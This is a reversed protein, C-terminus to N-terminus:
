ELLGVGAALIRSTLTFRAYAFAHASVETATGMAAVLDTLLDELVATELHGALMLVAAVDVVVVWRQGIPVDPHADGLVWLALRERSGAPVLGAPLVVAARLKDTRLLGSRVAEVPRDQAPEMLARAPGLVVARQGPELRLAIEEVRELVEAPSLEAETLASSVLAEAGVGEQLDMVQVGWRHAQLRRRVRRSSYAPLVA